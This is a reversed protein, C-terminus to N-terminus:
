PSAVVGAIAAAFSARGDLYPQWSAEIAARFRRMSRFRWLDRAVAIPVYDSGLERRAAEGATYFILPHLAAATAPKSTQREQERLAAAVSDEMTHLSEHFLIELGPPGHYDSPLSSVAIMPPESLTYAGAWNTYATVDVRIPKWPMRFARSEFSAMNAGHKILMPQISDIWARNAADHRSWWAARYAPAAGQLAAAAGPPLGSAPLSDREEVHCLAARLQLLNADFLVDHDALERAYYDLAAEWAARRAPELRSIGATDTLSSTVAAIATSDLGKRARATVYLFHHLNIWFNSHFEFLATPAQAPRAHSPAASHSALLLLSVLMMTFV